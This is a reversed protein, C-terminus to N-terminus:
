EKLTIGNVEQNSRLMPRGVISPITYRPFNDGGYGMKLYGSGNDCIVRSFDIQDGQTVM